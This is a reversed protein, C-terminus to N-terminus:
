KQVGNFKSIIKQAVLETSRGTNERDHLESSIRAREAALLDTGASVRDFFSCLEEKSYIKEGGCLFREVDIGFGERARYEDVDEWILGIPRDLILYDFYVSSYDTLLADASRLLAYNSIGNEALFVENIFRLNSLGGFEDASLDDAFHPKAIVLLGHKEACANIAEADDLSHILPLRTDSAVEGTVKHHRYTPLWYILKKFNVDPFLKHADSKPLLLEDNRPLGLAYANSPFFGHAVADSIRLSESLVIIEDIGDPLSYSRMRKIAAGHTIFLSYQSNKLKPIPRNSSIIVKARAKILKLRLGSEGVIRVNPLKPAQLKHPSSIWYFRYHKNLGDAILKDFVAKTSDAMCPYSELLIVNGIPILKAVTEKASPFHFRSKLLHLLALAKYVTPTRRYLRLLISNKLTLDDFNELSDIHSRIEARIDSSANSLSAAYALGNISKAYENVFARVIDAEKSPLLDLKHKALSLEDKRRSIDATNASTVSSSGVTYIYGCYDILESKKGSLLFDFMFKGDEGYRLPSFRLSGIANRRFLKCCVNSWYFERREAIDRMASDVGIVSRDHLVHIPLLRKDSEIRVFNCCAVDAETEEIKRLLIEFYNPAVCDDGDIFAVYEANSIELALNRAAAAGRNESHIVRIRKDHTAFKDCISGSADTSGDDILLLEFDRFSNDTISRICDSIRSEANFVPVIVSIKAKNKM